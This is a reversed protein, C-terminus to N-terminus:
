DRRKPVQVLRVQSARHLNAHPTKEARDHHDPIKAHSGRIGTLANKKVMASRLIDLLLSVHTAIRGDDCMQRFFLLLAVGLYIPVQPVELILIKLM